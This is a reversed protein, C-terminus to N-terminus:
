RRVITVNAAPVEVRMLRRRGDFYAVIEADPTNVRLAELEAGGVTRAGVSDVSVSGPTVDQPILVPITQQGKTNWNYLLALIAFQYHLNNDLVAVRPSPFMFDAEHPEKGGFDISTKATGSEFAVAGSTKKEAQASWKYSLPTGDSTIRLEGNSRAEPQDPIRIVTESRIIWADGSRETEFQETGVEAGELLILFTGKDAVPTQGQAQAFLSCLGWSMPLAVIGALLLRRRM